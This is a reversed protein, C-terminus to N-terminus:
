AWYEQNLPQHRNIHLLISGNMYYSIIGTNDSFGTILRYYTKEYDLYLNTNFSPLARKDVCAHICSCILGCTHTKLAAHPSFPKLRWAYKIMLVWYIDGWRCWQRERWRKSWDRTSKEGETARGWLWVKGGGRGKWFGRKGSEKKRWGPYGTCIIETQIWRSMKRFYVRSKLCVSSKFFGWTPTGEKMRHKEKWWFWWFM